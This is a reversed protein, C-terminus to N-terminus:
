YASEDAEIWPRQRLETGVRKKKFDPVDALETQWDQIGLLNLLRESHKGAKHIVGRNKMNAVKLIPALSSPVTHTSLLM